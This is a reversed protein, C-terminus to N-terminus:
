IVPHGIRCNMTEKRRGYGVRLWGQRTTVSFERQAIRSLHVVSMALIASTALRDPLADGGASLLEVM